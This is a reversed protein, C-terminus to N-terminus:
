VMEIGWFARVALTPSIGQFAALDASFEEYFAEM